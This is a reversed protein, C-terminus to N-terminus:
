QPDVLVQSFNVELNNMRFVSWGCLNPYWMIIAASIMAVKVPPVPVFVITVNIVPLDVPSLTPVVVIGTIMM